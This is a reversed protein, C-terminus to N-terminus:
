VRPVIGGCGEVRSFLFQRYRETFDGSGETDIFCAAVDKEAAILALWFTAGEFRAKLCPFKEFIAKDFEIEHATAPNESCFRVAQANALGAGNGHYVRFACPVMGAGRLNKFSNNLFVEDVPSRHVIKNEGHM